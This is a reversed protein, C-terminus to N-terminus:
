EGEIIKSIEASSLRENGREKILSVLRNIKETSCGINYFSNCELGCVAVLNINNDIISKGYLKYNVKSKSIRHAIQNAPVNCKQCYYNVIEYRLKYQEKQLKTM